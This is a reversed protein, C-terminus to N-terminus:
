QDRPSPTPTTVRVGTVAGPTASTPGGTPPTFEPVRSPPASSQGLYQHNAGRAVCDVVQGDMLFVVDNWGVGPEDNRYFLYTWRGAVRRAVPEGWRERVQTETMGPRLATSTPAAAPAAATEQAAAPRAPWLAAAACVGLVACWRVLHTRAGDAPRGPLLAASV